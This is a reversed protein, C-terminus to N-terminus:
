RATAKLLNGPATEEVDVVSSKDGRILIVVHKVPLPAPAPPTVVPVPEAAPPPPATPRWKSAPHWKAVPATPGYLSQRAVQVVEAGETTQKDMPNRLVLQIQGSSAALTVKAADQSSCLLTVVNVKEARGQADPQIKQGAALVQVDQLITRTLSEAGSNGTLLVDVRTGPGVFGAVAVVDDVRISVARMGEPIVAPLGAGSGTPALKPELIVEDAFMPYLVARGALDEVKTFTGQPLTGGSWSIMKLNEAALPAGVELDKSAVVVNPSPPKQETQNLKTAVLVSAGTALILAFLLAIYLGTRNM